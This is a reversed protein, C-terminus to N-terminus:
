GRSSTGSPSEVPSRNFSGSALCEDVSDAAEGCVALTLEADLSPPAISAAEVVSMASASLRAVRALVIDRVTEPIDAGESALMETVYFPNGSTLHHLATADVGTGAALSAVAEPSLPEVTMRDIAGSTALEGFV